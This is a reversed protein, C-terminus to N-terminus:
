EVCDPVNANGCTRCEFWLLAFSGAEGAWHVVQRSVFCFRCCVRCTHIMKKNTENKWVSLDFIQSIWFLIAPSIVQGAHLLSAEFAASFHGCQPCGIFGFSDLPQRMAKPTNITTTPNKQHGANMIAISIKMQAATDLPYCLPNM